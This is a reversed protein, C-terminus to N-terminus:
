KIYGEKKLYLWHKALANSLNKNYFYGFRVEDDGHSLEFYGTVFETKTREIRFIFGNIEHPLEKLIEDSTPASFSGKRFLNNTFRSKFYGEKNYWFFTDQPFGNIKLKKAIELDVCYEKM